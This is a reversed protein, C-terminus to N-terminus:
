KHSSSHAVDLRYYWYPHRKKSARYIQLGKKLQFTKPHCSPIKETKIEKAFLKEINFSHPAWKYSIQAFTTGPGSGLLTFEV